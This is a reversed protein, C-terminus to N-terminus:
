LPNASLSGAKQFGDKINVTEIEKVARDFARWQTPQIRNSEDLVRKRAVLDDGGFEERGFYMRQRFVRALGDPLEHEPPRQACEGIELNDLTIKACAFYPSGHDIRRWIEDVNEFGFLFARVHIEGRM